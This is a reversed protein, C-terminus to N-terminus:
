TSTGPSQRHFITMSYCLQTVVHTVTVNDEPQSNPKTSAGEEKGKSEAVKTVNNSLGPHLPANRARTKVGVEDSSMTDTTQAVSM